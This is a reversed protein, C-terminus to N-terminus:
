RAEETEINGGKTGINGGRYAGGGKIIVFASSSLGDCNTCM